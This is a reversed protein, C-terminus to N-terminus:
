RKCTYKLYYLETPDIYKLNTPIHNEKFYINVTDRLFMGIDDLRVNGFADKKSAHMKILNQGAGEAVVIVAYGRALIRKKLAHLFGSEGNFEFPDEPILTFNVEQSALTAAAAIFGAARGM